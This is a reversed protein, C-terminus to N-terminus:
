NKLILVDYYIQELLEEAVESSIKGQDLCDHIYMEQIQFVKSLYLQVTQAKYTTDIGHVIKALRKQYYEIAFAVTSYNETNKIGDLYSLAAEYSYTKLLDLQERYMDHLQEYKDDKHYLVKKLKRKVLAIRLKQWIISLSFGRTYMLYSQYFLANEKSVRGAEVLENIAEQEIQTTRKLVKRIEERDPKTLHGSILYNKQERLLYLVERKGHEEECLSCGEIVQITHEIMAIRTEEFSYRSTEEMRERLLFRFLIVPVIISILIIISAVFIIEQRYISLYGYGEVPISLAIALTITGHIGSLSYLLAEKADRVGKTFLRPQVFVWLFRLIGVIVYVLISLMLLFGIHVNPQNIVERVVVPLNIGLLVAVMGELVYGIVEWTHDSVLQLKTSKMTLIPRELRYIIGSMIVALIGSVHFIEEAIMYVVFPTLIQIVVLMEIHDLQYRTLLYRFKTILFGLIIGMVLGGLIVYIFELLSEGFNFKNHLSAAIILDYILIAVSDSFLSEGELIHFARSPYERTKTIGHLISSNTPMIVSALAFTVILPLSPVILNVTGATIVVTIVVLFLALSIIPGIYEKMERVDMRQAEDFILPKIIVVMFVEPHFQFEHFMPLFSFLIGVAIQFFILPIAPILRDLIDALIIALLISIIVEVSEM